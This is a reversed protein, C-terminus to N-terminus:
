RRRRDGMAALDSLEPVVGDGSGLGRLWGGCESLKLKEDNSKPMVSEIVNTAAEPNPAFAITCV